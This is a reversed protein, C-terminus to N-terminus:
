SERARRMERLMTRRHIPLRKMEADIKNTKTFRFLIAIM